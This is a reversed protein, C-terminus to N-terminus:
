PSIQNGSEELACAVLEAKGLETHAWTDVVVPETVFDCSFRAYYEVLGNNITEGDFPAPAKARTRPIRERFPHIADTVIIESSVQNTDALEKHRWYINFLTQSDAIALVATFQFFYPNPRVTGFGYRIRAGWMSRKGQESSLPKRPYGDPEWFEIINVSLAGIALNLYGDSM